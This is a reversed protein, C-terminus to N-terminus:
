CFADLIARQVDPTTPPNGFTDTIQIILEQLLKPNSEITKLIPILSNINSNDQKIVDIIKESQLEQSYILVEALDYIQDTTIVSEVNEMIEKIKSFLNPEFIELAILAM